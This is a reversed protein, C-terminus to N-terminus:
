AKEVGSKGAEEREREREASETFIGISIRLPDGLM